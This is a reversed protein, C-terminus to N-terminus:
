GIGSFMARPKVFLAVRNEPTAKGLPHPNGPSVPTAPSHFTERDIRPKVSRLNYGRKPSPIHGSRGDESLVSNTSGKDSSPPPYSGVISASTPRPSDPTPRTTRPFSLVTVSPPKVIQLSTWGVATSPPIIAGPEEGYLTLRTDSVWRRM